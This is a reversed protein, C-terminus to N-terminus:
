PIYIYIYICTQVLTSPVRIDHLRSLLLLLSLLLINYISCERNPLGSWVRSVYIFFPVHYASPTDVHVYVFTCCAPYVATFCVAVCADCAYTCPISILHSTYARHVSSRETHSRLSHSNSFTSLMGVASPHTYPASPYRFQTFYLAHIYTCTASSKPDTSRNIQQDTSTSSNTITTTCSRFIHLSFVTLVAHHWHYADHFHILFLNLGRWTYAVRVCVCM